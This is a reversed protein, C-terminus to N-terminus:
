GSIENTISYDLGLDKRIMDAVASNGSSIIGTKIGREKLKAITEKAGEMILTGDLDFLVLKM